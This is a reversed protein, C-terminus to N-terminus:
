VFRLSEKWDHYHRTSEMGLGVYGTAAVRTVALDLKQKDKLPSAFFAKSHAYVAKLNKMDVLDGAAIYAFGLNSFTDHLQAITALQLPSSEEQSLSSVDIVPVEGQNEM